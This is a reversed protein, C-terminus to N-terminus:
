EKSGSHSDLHSRLITMGLNQSAKVQNATTGMITATENVSFDELFRLIIVHRQLDSLAHSFASVFEDMLAPEEVPTHLSKTSDGDVMELSALHLACCGQGTVFHYAVQYLYTRLNIPMIKGATVKELFETFVRGVIRDAEVPDDCFRLAYVYIASAHNDFVATLADQDLKKAVRFLHFGDKM